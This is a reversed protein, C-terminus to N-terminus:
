TIPSLVLSLRTTNTFHMSMLAMIDKSAYSGLELGDQIMIYTMTKETICTMIKKIHLRANAANNLM